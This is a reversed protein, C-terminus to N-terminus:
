INNLDNATDNITGRNVETCMGPDLDAEFVKKFVSFWVPAYSLSQIQFMHTVTM